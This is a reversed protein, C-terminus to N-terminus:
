YRKPYASSFPKYSNFLSKGFGKLMTLTPAIFSVGFFIFCMIDQGTMDLLKVKKLTSPYGLTNVYEIVTDSSPSAVYPNNDNIPTMDLADKQVDLVCNSKGIPVWKSLPFIQDDTRTPPTVAPAQEAPADNAPINIDAMTNGLLMILESGFSMVLERGLLMVYSELRPLLFEFRERPSAKTFIDALQYNTTVFFLEVVGKKVLDPRSATLYMLSKVMSYFRTQDVSIWLPDEDLKLRDVMPTDVPDCSDMWAWHAQKLGYLAKKLLYVHTLHYPDVFGDPQSVYVEENLEGNLFSTNVDMQYITMNKSAANAIFIRAKNKLVDGYEDLKVKYIWKLAIIMVCDTQPVLEWVQLRDFEHIEDQIAQFWCDETITSKFNKPKVKSLISNYLCWLANTALQKKTSVPRSPNGIVNDILHDKSWKGLHHLTQTVYTSEASSADGFSSAQHLCPSQLTSSSPSHSPSPADQDISTSSPTCASNVPVPIALAPFVPRKICPPELYEDFMPQFLIEIKKNTPPVYPAALVMNPVIGSSIQRLKLFLPAPGTSLQVPAMPESLKDFQVHITEMIRRTRKNYIRYGKRSPAYGVFIGIDATPQLKGLDECLELPKFSSAVAMIQDQLSQVVLLNPFVEDHRMIAGFHDNGFRVIGIFKKMFNRLRSRDRTIHKSCGSDLYWLVIQVVYELLEQSHKPYLWAFALSRDLPREVKAEEVIERLTKVSEKLHMLYDLHVEKNNRLRPPIPKVNIVYMGPALVKPTISDIHKAYTIMISDYLEKYHQKVKANEVSFLENQEQLVSVKGTLQTIQFDLARFDLTRDADSRTEMVDHDDKQIKYKLKSLETELELCRAQVVTHADHMEYFRSVNLKSNTAIYSVEKSLCNNILTDNEILFNKREIEDCKSNVVNQDIEAELEDFIAKMEITLAEFLINSDYSLGAKDYIPDTSSLNETFMTQATPAEDVDSDFADCDDAQFVNDVNLALDQVPQEDVDEDVVNDQGGAIFLLQEEDLAVGNEQAQMLLM